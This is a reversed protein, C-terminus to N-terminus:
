ATVFPRVVDGNGVVETVLLRLLKRHGGRSANGERQVTGFCLLEQKCCAIISKATQFFFHIGCFWNLLLHLKRQLLGQLNAPSSASKMVVSKVASLASFKNQKLCGSLFLVSGNSCKLDHKWVIILHLKFTVKRRFPNTELPIEMVFAKSYIAHKEAWTHKITIFLMSNITKVATVALTLLYRMVGPLCCSWFPTLASKRIGTESSM